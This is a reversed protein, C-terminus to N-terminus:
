QKVEPDSKVLSLEKIRKLIEEHTVIGKEELLTILAQLTYTQSLLLNEVSVTERPKDSM